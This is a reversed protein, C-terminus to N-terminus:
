ATEIAVGSFAIKPVQMRRFRAEMLAFLGFALLGLAAFGLILSGFPQAEVVELSEGLSMARDARADLGAEMLFFGVPAFALARGIYGFRAFGVAFACAPGECDLRKKFDQFLAQGINALGMAFVAAGVAILLIDGYPISLLTQAAAAAGSEGEAVDELGDMVDFLSFALAAHVIGSLGQGVRIALAKPCMGHGDADFLSQLARWLAFGILGFATAGILVQGLPWAAWAAVAQTVGRASPTLDAAALLAIIGVSLYVLARAVYGLRAAVELLARVPARKLWRRVEAVAAIEPSPAAATV